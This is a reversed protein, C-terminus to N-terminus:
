LGAKKDLAKHADQHAKLVNKHDHVGMRAAVDADDVDKDNVADNLPGLVECEHQIPHSGRHAHELEIAEAAAKAEEESDFYVVEPTVDVFGDGNPIRGQIPGTILAHTM